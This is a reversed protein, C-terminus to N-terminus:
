MSSKNLEERRKRISVLEDVRALLGEKKVKQKSDFTKTLVYYALKLDILSFLIKNESTLSMWYEVFNREDTFINQPLGISYDKLIKEYQGTLLLSEITKIKEEQSKNSSQTKVQYNKIIKTIEDIILLESNLNSSDGAKLMGKFKYLLKVAESINIDSM